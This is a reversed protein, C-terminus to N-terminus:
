IRFSFEDDFMELYKDYAFRELMEYWNESDNITMVAHVVKERTM